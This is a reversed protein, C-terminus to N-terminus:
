NAAVSMDKMAWTLLPPAIFTTLMIVVVVLAYLSSDIIKNTLGFTAFIIGVEGRPVMGIGIVLKKAKVKIAAWGSVIKGIVAIVFLVLIPVIIKADFLTRVDMLMGAHVFFIPVFIDVLPKIKERIHDKDERVELILGAAFAGVITALGISNAIFALGFAFIIATIAYTRKVKFKETLKLLYPAFKIGIFISGALFVISLVSIKGINFLSVKGAEIIGVLVSLIILGIVDDIIAAGLIIKGENTNIKKKEAFIRMTIGVSTATLTAGIFLAILSTQGLFIYYYYGLMFPLVVGVVAVLTSAVGVKLLKYINSELGVEFLLLIVGFEALFIFIEATEPNLINFLSPGLILGVMLEGLVASQNMKHFLWGAIKALIIIILLELLIAGLVHTEM